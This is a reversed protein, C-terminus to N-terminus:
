HATRLVEMYGSTTLRFFLARNSHAYQKCLLQTM